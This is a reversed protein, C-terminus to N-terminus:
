SGFFTNSRVPASAATVAAAASITLGIKPAIRLTGTTRATSVQETINAIADNAPKQGFLDKLKEGLRDIGRVTPLAAIDACFRAHWKFFAQAREPHRNWKEAFNEGLTTENWIFWQVVGDVKRTEISDPMHQIVDVVLELENDYERHKVCWEYSRSALTTIIVSLPSVDMRDIFFIDRHRKGIQVVRRLIGKFAVSAPYPEVNAGLSDAAIHKRIRIVPVLKAREEFVRRYGKPNSAKWRRLSKDPVLEGGLRCNPNPISPTIDMHFEGAYNLRWCRAMEEILPAYNGNAKLRDGIAKKQAAPSVQVDLDPQHAVLDVDIENFGIPRVVTGIATSGQLYVTMSRLTPDDSDALWTGVGEYRQKALSTQTPTPELSQCVAELLGVVQLERAQRTYDIFNM